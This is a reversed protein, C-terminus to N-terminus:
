FDPRLKRLESHTVGDLRYIDGAGVVFTVPVRGNVAQAPDSEAHVAAMFYGRSKYFYVVKRELNTVALPTYPKSTFVELEKLLDRQPYFVIDGEFSLPGFRYQIGEHVSVVVNARTKDPSLAIVPEDVVADLYGESHYLGRIREVGSKVDSEVYPLVRPNRPLRERTAGEVYDLLTKAPLHENGRFTVNGLQTLPGEHITLVLTNGPAIDWKVEAQSFGNKRYFVGLFFATDDALAPSLGSEDISALSDTIANRIQEETFHANGTLRLRVQGHGPGPIRPRPTPSPLPIAPQFKVVPPPTPTPTPTPLPPFPTPEPPLTPTARPVPEAPGPTPSPEQANLLGGMAALCLALPLLPRKM